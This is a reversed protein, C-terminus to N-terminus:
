ERGCRKRWTARRREYAADEIYSKLWLLGIIPLFVPWACVTLMVGMNYTRMQDKDKLGYPDGDVKSQIAFTVLMGVGYLIIWFM